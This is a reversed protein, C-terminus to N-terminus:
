FLPKFSWTSAYIAFLEGGLVETQIKVFITLTGCWCWNYSSVYRMYYFYFLLLFHIFIFILVLFLLLFTPTTPTIGQEFVHCNFIFLFKKVIILVFNPCSFSHPHHNFFSEALHSQFTLFCLEFCKSFNLCPAM